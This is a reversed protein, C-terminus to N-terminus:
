YRPWFYHEVIHPTIMRSTAARCAASAYAYLDSFLPAAHLVNCGKSCASCSTVQRAQPAAAFPAGYLRTTGRAATSGRLRKSANATQYTQQHANVTYMRVAAVKENGYYM